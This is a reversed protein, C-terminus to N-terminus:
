RSTMATTLEKTIADFCVKVNLPMRNGFSHLGYITNMLLTKGKFVEVLDGELKDLYFDPVIGVGSGFQILALCTHFSNAICHAQTHYHWRENTDTVFEHTIAKNQWTNAVYPLAQWEHQEVLAKTGVLVDRFEGIRKQKLNSDQSRGVRIALDIDESMLDLHQDHSILEPKLLPYQLLLKGIASTVLTEMLANPATIRVRGQPIVKTQETDLWADDAIQNLMKCHQYFQQGADTLAQKRTTRKLLVIGLETELSKLHQSVVSKSVALVEAAATISGAEVIHAFVSMQRLRIM